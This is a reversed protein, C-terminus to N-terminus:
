KIIAAQFTNTATKLNDIATTVQRDITTTAADRVTTAAAIAASFASKAAVPANGTGTGAIISSNLSNASIIADNLARKDCLNIGTWFTKGPTGLTMNGAVLQPITVNPTAILISDAKLVTVYATKVTSLATTQVSNLSANYNNKDYGAICNRAFALESNVFPGMQSIYESLTKPKDEIVTEKSCSMVVTGFLLPLYACFIKIKINKM